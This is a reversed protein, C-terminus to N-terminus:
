ADERETESQADVASAVRDTDPAPTTVGVLTVTPRYHPASGDLHHQLMARWDEPNNGWGPVPDLDVEILLRARRRPFLRAVLEAPDPLGNETISESM